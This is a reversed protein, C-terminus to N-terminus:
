SFLRRALGSGAQLGRSELADYLVELDAGIRDMAEANLPQGSDDTILGEMARALHNAAERMRVFPRESRAVHPVDLTITFQRLAAQDPDESLAAQTEFQLVLVPAAGQQAAPLVMRGPLAGPVFGQVGAHQTLYGPSWAARTARITFSLQADHDAAFQDLERARAVEQMMDPFDAALQLADAFAHLKVVFESFEIENLPGTRNALQIGARLAGYRQGHRPLEWDPSETGRGEVWFPKSGIRRSGPLAALVADGSVVSDASLAVLADLQEHLIAHPGAAPLGSGPVRTQGGELGHDGTDLVPDLREGSVSEGGGQDPEVRSSAPSRARRPQVSRAVWRNYLLVAVLVAGGLVVLGLQLPTMM